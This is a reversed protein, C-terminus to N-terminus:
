APFAGIKVGAWHFWSFKLLYADYWRLITYGPIMTVFLPRSWWYCSEFMWLPVTVRWFDRVPDSLEKLLKRFLWPFDRRMERVYARAFNQLPQYWPTHDSVTGDENFFNWETSWRYIKKQSLIRDSPLYLTTIQKPTMPNWSSFFIIHTVSTTWFVTKEVLEGSSYRSITLARGEYIWTCGHRLGSPLCLAMQWGDRTLSNKITILSLQQGRILRDNQVAKFYRSCHSYFYYTKANSTLLFLRTIDLPIQFIGLPPPSAPPSM